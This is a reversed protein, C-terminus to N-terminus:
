QIANWGYCIDMEGCGWKWQLYGEFDLNFLIYLFINM